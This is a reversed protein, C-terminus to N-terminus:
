QKAVIMTSTMRVETLTRVNDLVFTSFDDPSSCRVKLLIDWEGFLLNAEVVQELDALQDFIKREDVSSGLSILVYGLM